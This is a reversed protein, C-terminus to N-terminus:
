GWRGGVLAIFDAWSEQDLKKPNISTPHNLIFHRLGKPTIMRRGTKATPVLLKRRIWSHVSSEHVGLLRAVVGVGMDSQIEESTVGARWLITRVNGVSMRLQKAAPGVGLETVVQIVTKVEDETRKRRKLRPLGLRKAARQMGSISMDLKDELIKLPETGWVLKLAEDQKGGKTVRGRRGRKVGLEVERRRVTEPRINLRKAVTSRPIHVARVLLDEELSFTRPRAGM